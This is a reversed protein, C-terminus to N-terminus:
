PTIGTSFSGQAIEFLATNALHHHLLAAMASSTCTLFFQGRMKSLCVLLREQHREDLEAAFDDFLFVCSGPLLQAQALKLAILIIKQQGRSLMRKSNQLPTEFYIDAQHPGSSTYQQQSDRLFQDVLIDALPRNLGKKDWGKYYHIACPMDTLQALYVQFLEAWQEFYALRLADLQAALQVLVADWPLVQQHSARQKLLANRQKLARRYNKWLGHYSQKVHFLGWDLLSRRLAPGADMIDFIDQYIVQCPLFQALESSRRCFQQNLKVLTAGVKNKQISITEATSTRAFVNLFPQTGKILPSIERSRFSHGSGLLYIAELLSTKGSGNEGYFINYQPHLELQAHQINRLQHITLHTLHM